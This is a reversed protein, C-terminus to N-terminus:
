LVMSTKLPVQFGKPRIIRFNFSAFFHSKQGVTSTVFLELHPVKKCKKTVLGECALLGKCAFGGKRRKRLLFEGAVEDFCFWQTLSNQVQVVSAKSKLM